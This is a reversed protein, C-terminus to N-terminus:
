RAGWWSEIAMVAQYLKWLTQGRDLAALLPAGTGLADFVEWRSLYKTGRAGALGTRWAALAQRYLGAQALVLSIESLTGQKPYSTTNGVVRVQEVLEATALARDAAAEAQGQQGAQALAQAVRSFVQAKGEADSHIESATLAQNVIKVAKTKQGALAM